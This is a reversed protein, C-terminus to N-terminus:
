APNTIRTVPLAAGPTLTEKGAPPAVPEQGLVDEVYCRLVEAVSLACAIAGGPRHPADGDFLECLRGEQAILDLCPRLLERAERRVTASRGRIKLVASVYPGLLWPFVSGNHYARDRSQVNGEYRGHYGPDRPSLTRIGFPVLLESKVRELVKEHRDPALVAFPLSLALLQNPRVSPDRGQDEVVDLCCGREENWFRRNFGDRISNALGALSKAREVRGFRACLEGATRVANYWLANLEVPRGVRPTVVRDGVKADMWTAAIGPARIALLGEADGRIELGSCGAGWRYANIIRCVVDLLQGAVSAEDHSYRLYESAANVFWLSVDAGEYVPPGGGEAFRSPMLGNNLKSAMSVLLSKAEAFRGGVLFLGTLGVLADRGSPAAWPYGGICHAVRDGGEDAGVVFQGAARLLADAWVDTAPAQPATRVPADADGVASRFQIPDASCVFHATRARAVRFRVVGPTWLDELGAYGREQERRYIQSLYWNPESQFRGNHAFFVEPSRSTAPVRHHRSGRNEATLNWNCQFALEHIPRMALLPRLELDVAKAAGEFVYSLVTTNQGPLLRLTKVLRWGEGEYTWQPVPESQFRNLFRHGQPYIAGPYENCGLDIRQGNCWLSEEVRSLLVMRRVPPAMSAVLLGHYKRTNLGVATSSAYGGIGNTVLWERTLLGDLDMGRVCLGSKM